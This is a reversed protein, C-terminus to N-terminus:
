LYCFLDVAELHLNKSLVTRSLPMELFFCTHADLVRSDNECIARSLAVELCFRTHRQFNKTVSHQISMADTVLAAQLHM